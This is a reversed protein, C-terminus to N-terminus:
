RRKVKLVYSKVVPTTSKLDSPRDIEIKLRLTTVPNDTVYNTVTRERLSPHLPDNFSIQEPVDQFPDDIRSIQYWNEGDDPTIYFKVWHESALYEFPIDIEASELMVRDVLGGVRLPKTVLVSKSKYEVQQMLLDRVGIAWRRGSFFQRQQLADGIVRTDRYKNIDNVPPIPGEVQIEPNRRNVWFAHGVNSPISNHQELFVRVYRVARAEFAWLARGVVINNATRATRLNIDNGIWVNTPFIRTWDTGDPSTQIQKVLIPYNANDELGYPILNISNLNRIRQFDFELGLRLVGGEPATAWDVRESNGEDDTRLYVFNLNQASLKQTETLHYREYEIWTNPEDDTLAELNDYERMESKFIHMRNGTEADVPAQTPDDVEQNNGLFGNSSPLISIVADESLNVLDGEQGLTIHGPSFLAVRESPRTMGIDIFELSEFTDGFTIISSDMSNSYMQLTKLKNNLRANDKRANEVETAVLNHSFLTAARLLDVQQQLLNIDAEARRWFRNMKESSPPETEDVAEYNLLPRGAGDQFSTLVTALEQILDVTDRIAGSEQAERLEDLLSAAQGYLLVSPVMEGM